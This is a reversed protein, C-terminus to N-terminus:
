GLARLMLEWTLRDVTIRYGARELAIVERKRSKRGRYYRRVRRGIEHIVDRDYGLSVVRDFAELTARYTAALGGRTVSEDAALYAVVFQYLVPWDAKAISRRAM